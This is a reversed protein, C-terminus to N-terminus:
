IQWRFVLKVQHVPVVVNSTNFEVPDVTAYKEPLAHGTGNPPLVFTPRKQGHNDATPLQFVSIGTGHFSSGTTTSSPNHDLNDLAGITFIGNRLCAPMM